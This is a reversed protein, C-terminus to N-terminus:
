SEAENLVHHRQSLVLFHMRIAPLTSRGQTFQSILALSCEFSITLEFSFEPLSGFERFSVELPRTVIPSAMTGDVVTTISHSSDIGKMAETIASIDIIDCLPNSPTEMWVIVDTGPETSEIEEIIVKAPGTMDARRVQVNHRTFVDLLVTTVGHYLDRPLIVTLPSSHALVVASAAMLGSSFAWSTPKATPTDSVNICCTELDHVIKELLLRTPNNNRAYTADSEHYIGDAPRTYTSAMHIPPALPANHIDEIGAHAAITPLSLRKAAVGRREIALVEARKGAEAASINHGFYRKGISYRSFRKRFIIQKMSYRNQNPFYASM